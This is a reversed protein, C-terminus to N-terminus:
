SAPEGVPAPLALGERLAALARQRFATMSPRDPLVADAGHFMGPEIHLECPVGAEQLRRAYDVDEDHFLDIDGVGIWAPPLGGLDESRAPAAYPREPGLTPEHGLYATWAFRNSRTTWILADRGDEAARPVTRDDLMPYVLVQFRLPPGGEDRARQALSAALLGGASDGGVALRDPDVDLSGACDHLWELVATCDDLGAPFPHEPALRYDVNAVVVGLRAALTSCWAHAQEPRGMITGGGHIWVVGPSPRTRAAPEYLVVRVPSAGIPGPVRTTTITVGGVPATPVEILRRAARLVPDNAIDTPLLLLPTRLEPAVPDLRPRRRAVAWSAAAAITAGILLARRARATM